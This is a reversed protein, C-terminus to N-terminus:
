SELLEPVAPMFVGQALSTDLPAIYRFLTAARHLGCDRVRSLSQNWVEGRCGKGADQVHRCLALEIGGRRSASAGLSVVRLCLWLFGLQKRSRSTQNQLRGPISSVLPFAIVNSTPFRLM